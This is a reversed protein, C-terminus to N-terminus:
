KLHRVYKQVVDSKHLFPIKIIDIDDDCYNNHYDNNNRRQMSTSLLIFSFIKM